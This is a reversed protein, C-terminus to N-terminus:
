RVDSTTHMVLSIDEGHGLIVKIDKILTVADQNSIVDWLGDSALIVTEDASTLDEEQLLMGLNCPAM